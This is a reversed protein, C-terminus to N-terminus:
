LHDEVKVVITDAILDHLCRRDDRLIFCADVLSVLPGLIPIFGLVWLPLVRLSLLRGMGVREGDARLVRIKLIRKAITQGYRNLWVLNWILVTLLLGGALLGFVAFFLVPAEGGRQRSLAAPILIAALVGIVMLGGGAILGDLLSAGLRTGRDALVQAEQSPLDAVIASPAEYPNFEAM